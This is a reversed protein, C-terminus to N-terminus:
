SRFSYLSYVGDFDNLLILRNEIFDELAIWDSPAFIQRNNKEFEVGVDYILIHTFGKEIISDAIQDYDGITRRSYWWRDLIVDPSCNTECYYSRAEWLFLVKSGAPLRNVTQMAPSYWGLQDSLYDEKSMKGLLVPLPNSTAFHLFEGFLSFIFVMGVFVNITVGVRIGPLRMEQVAKFGGASLLAFAPFVGYYHRTRTLPDAIRAGIGWIIWTTFALIILYKYSYRENNSIYGWGVFVGPILAVILPGISTNYGPGQEAGM